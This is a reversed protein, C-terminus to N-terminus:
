EGRGQGYLALCAADALGAHPVRKRGPTLDLGPLRNSAVHIAREKGEGVVDKFMRATWSSPVPEIVVLGFVAVIGRWLGWGKGTTLGGGRGEGPRVSVRELVVTLPSGGPAIGGATVIASRVTAAMREPSYERRKVLLDATLWSGLVEHNDLLVLAGDKGPDIGLTIM